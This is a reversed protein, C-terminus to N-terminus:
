RVIATKTPGKRTIEYETDFFNEDSLDILPQCIDLPVGNEVPEYDTM